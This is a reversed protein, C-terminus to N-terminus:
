VQRFSAALNLAVGSANNIPAKYSVENSPKEKQLISELRRKPQFLLAASSLKAAMLSPIIM